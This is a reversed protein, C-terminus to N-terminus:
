LAALAEVPKIDVARKAPIYGAILGAIIMTINASIVIGIPVTPHAFVQEAVPQVAYVITIVLKVLGLGLIMGIYGFLMTIGVSELLVLMLVSRPSAGLAKRIGFERTRERVTILMINSVGVIGAILSAIGILWIFMNLGKMVKSIQLFQEYSNRVWVAGNDSKSFRRYDAITERIKKNFEENEETTELKDTVLTISNYTGEPNFIIGVTSKPAFIDGGRGANESKYVGAIQFPIQGVNIWKGVPSKEKPMLLKLTEESILIVKRFEKIDVNNLDRGQKISIRQWKLNKPDYAAISTSTNFEGYSLTVGKSVTPFADIIQSSLETALLNKVNEDFKIRRSKPLGEYPESTWGPSVHITNVTDSAFNESMANFFGDGASLLVILLFIGWAISFGTLAIRLKNRSMSVYIETLLDMM